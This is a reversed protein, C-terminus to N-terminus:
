TEGFVRFTGVPRLETVVPPEECRDRIGDQFREFAVVGEFPSRAGDTEISALHLFSVGDELAFTAYRLGEPRRRDLEEYVARVLAENEAERGPKVKYRVVVQRM